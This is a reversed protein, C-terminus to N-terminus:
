SDIELHVYVVVGRREPSIRVLALDDLDHGWIGYKGNTRNRNILGQRKEMPVVPTTSTEEEEAYIRQYLAVIMSAIGARTFGEPRDAALAFEFESKLPYDAVVIISRCPLVVDDGDRLRALSQKADALAIYPSTAEGGEERDEVEVTFTIDALAAGARCDSPVRDDARAMAPVAMLLLVLLLWASLVAGPGVRLRSLVPCLRLFIM